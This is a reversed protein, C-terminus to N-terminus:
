KRPLQRALFAAAIDRPDRREVDAEYNMRRMEADSVAGALRDFVPRLAPHRQL